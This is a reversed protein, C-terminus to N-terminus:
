NLTFYMSTSGPMQQYQLSKYIM